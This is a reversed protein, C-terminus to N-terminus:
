AAVHPWAIVDLMRSAYKITQWCYSITVIYTRLLWWGFLSQVSQARGNWTNCLVANAVLVTLQFCNHIKRGFYVVENSNSEELIDEAPRVICFIEAKLSACYMLWVSIFFLENMVAFLFYDISRKSCPSVYNTQPLAIYGWSLTAGGVIRNSNSNRFFNIFHDTNGTNETTNRNTLIPTWITWFFGGFYRVAKYFMNKEGTQMEEQVMLGTKM